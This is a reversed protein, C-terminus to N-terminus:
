KEPGVTHTLSAQMLGTDNLPKTLSNTIKGDAYRRARAAVTAPKLPPSTLNAITKGIDGAAQLGVGELVDGSSARGSIVARVGDAMIGAWVKQQGAVTPRVFPRPPIGQAPSGFEHITAVYAVQTGDPYKAGPFWGVSAVRDDFGEVYAEMRAKIKEINFSAV